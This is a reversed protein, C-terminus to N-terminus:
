NKWHILSFSLTYRSSYCHNRIYIREPHYFNCLFIKNFQTSTLEAWKDKSLRLLDEEQASSSSSNKLSEDLPAYSMEPDVDDDDTSTTWNLLSIDSEDLDISSSRSNNFVPLDKTTRRDVIQASEFGFRDVMNADNSKLLGVNLFTILVMLCVIINDINLGAKQSLDMMLELPKTDKVCFNGELLNKKISVAKVEENISHLIEIIDISDVWLTDM